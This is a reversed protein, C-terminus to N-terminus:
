KGSTASGATARQKKALSAKAHKDPAPKDSKTPMSHLNVHEQTIVTGAPIDVPVSAGLVMSASSIASQPISSSLVEKEEVDEIGYTSGAKIDRAAYVAKVRRNAAPVDEVMNRLRNEDEAIQMNRMTVAGAVLAIVAVVITVIIAAPKKSGRTNTM